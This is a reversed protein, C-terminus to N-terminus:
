SCPPCRQALAAIKYEIGFSFYAAVTGTGITNFTPTQLKKKLNLIFSCYKVQDSTAGLFIEVIKRSTFAIPDGKSHCSNCVFEMFSLISAPHCLVKGDVNFFHTRDLEIENNRYEKM